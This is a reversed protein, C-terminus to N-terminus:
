PASQPWAARRIQALFEARQAPDDRVVGLLASTTTRTGTVRAGRLSMCHHEAELVVGVGGPALHDELCNAILQTLREQVQLGRAFWEVVRALKSLGVIRQAPVYGVHAVGHFPLMHHACLSHFPIGAVVVLEDYGEDNAFTTLDFPRPSLLEAYARAVRGPTDRVHEDALDQGLGALLSRVADEVAGLDILPRAVARLEPVALLDTM